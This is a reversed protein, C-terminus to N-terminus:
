VNVQIAGCRDAQLMEDFKPLSSKERRRGATSSSVATTYVVVSKSSFSYVYMVGQSDALMAPQTYCIKKSMTIHHRFM